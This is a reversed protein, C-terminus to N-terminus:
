VGMAHNHQRNSRCKGGREGPCNAQGVMARAKHYDHIGCDWWARRAEDWVNVAWGSGLRYMIAAKHQKSM